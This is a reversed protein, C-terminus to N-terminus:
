PLGTVAASDKLVLRSGDATRIRVNTFRWNEANRITGATHADIVVNNFDFDLLPPDPFAAVSFATQAGTARIDEIRIHRFHPLGKDHPVPQAMVRWYRPVNTMGAPIRAYSYKPNWNMEIGIATRVGQMTIDRIHINSVTGGRTSASKFLIGKPTPAFVRIGSVDVDRIGGSTESGITFGAAADRVISDRVTVKETPRNVRLGDADRGAKLCIADDNCSIDCHEVLVNSSSDVDIGDTSPSRGGINNRITVGDVDVHDSYCIHVTWFGSCRLNLERLAVHSTQYIQILRPRRCAYDVAWRLGKPTYERRMRWYEEWWIKGNGDVVGAGEIKVDSQEYVNILASPWKMEIGAVRTPMAPYDALDQAGLLTAGSDIRLEVHSKLFISGCLYVGPALVVTGHGAKAAADIARQIPATDLTTGDGKAGYDRVPFDAAQALTVALLVAGVSLRRM